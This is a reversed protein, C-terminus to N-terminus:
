GARESKIPRDKILVSQLNWRAFDKDHLFLDSFSIQNNMAAAAAMRIDEDDAKAELERLAPIAANSMGGIMEVDITKLQGRLYQDVNYKAILGDSNPLFLALIMVVSIIVIPRGVNFPRIHWIILCICVLLILVIFWLPYVRMRSLGYAEIYLLLKSLAIVGLLMTLVTLIATLIRLKKPYVKHDRKAFVYGFVLLCMNIVTVGCLEFFGRRAYEAYTFSEPLRGALASFLYGAMICIFAIYIINILTIPAYVAAEPIKHAASLAKESGERSIKDLGRKHSNGYVSGFIYCAVPIGVFLELIYTGINDLKLTDIFDQMFKEFYSDSGMLLSVILMIVPIAAITGILAALLTRGKGDKKRLGKFSIFLGAFNLFPVILWQNVYDSIIFGSLKNSIQTNNSYMIWILYVACVFLFLFFHIPIGDYLFFPIVGALCIGLAIISRRNQRIGNLHMYILSICIIGIFFAFRGLSAAILVSWEWFFFGMVILSFALVIDPATAEYPPRKKRKYTTDISDCDYGYSIEGPATTDYTSSITTM